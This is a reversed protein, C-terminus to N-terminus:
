LFPVFGSDAKTLELAKDVVEDPLNGRSYSVSYSENNVGKMVLTSGSVSFKYDDAWKTNDDYVGTIVKSEANISYRGASHWHVGDGMKQYIDFTGNASFSLWVDEDVGQETGSYHWDGVLMEKLQSEEKQCGVAFLVAVAAMLINNFVKKM